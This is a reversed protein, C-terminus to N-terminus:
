WGQDERVKGTGKSVPIRFWVTAGWKVGREVDCGAHFALPDLSLDPRMNYFLIAGGRRPFVRLGQGCAGKLFNPPLPNGNARPLALAGGEECERLFVYFTAVRNSVQNGYHVPDFYDNHGSYHKMPDYRLINMSEHQRMATVNHMRDALRGLLGGSLTLYHSLSTRISNESDAGTDGRTRAVQSRQMSKASRRLIEEVEDETAFEPFFLTRPKLSLTVFLRENPPPYRFGGQEPIEYGKPLCRPLRHHALADYDALFAGPPVRSLAPGESVNLGFFDWEGQLGPPAGAYYAADAPQPDQQAACRPAGRRAAAALQGAAPTSCECAKGRAGPAPDPFVDPSCLTTGNVRRWKTWSLPGIGYRMEGSCRCLDGDKACVTLRGQEGGPVFALPRRTGTPSPVRPKPVAAGGARRRPPPPPPSADGRGGGHPPHRASAGTPPGLQAPPPPRPLPRIWLLAAVLSLPLAAALLPLGWRRWAAGQGRPRQARM